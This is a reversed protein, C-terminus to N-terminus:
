PALYFQGRPLPILVLPQAECQYAAKAWDLPRGTPDVLAPPAPPHALALTCDTQTMGHDLVYAHVPSPTPQPLLLPVLAVLQFM